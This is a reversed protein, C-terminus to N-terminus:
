VSLIFHLSNEKEHLEDLMKKMQALRKREFLNLYKANEMKKVQVEITHLKSQFRYITLPLFLNKLM